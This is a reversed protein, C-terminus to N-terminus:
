FNIEARLFVGHADLQGRTDILGSTQTLRGIQFFTEYQYGLLFRSYNWQPVTYSVGVVERLISVGVDGTYRNVFTEPGAAGAVTEAYSQGIRAFMDTGELRVFVCFGSDGLRRELDLYAWAGFCQVGNSESQTLISGPDSGPNLFRLRSDFYLFLMRYGAGWRMNWHPDLSYERSNYTLDILNYDLRGDQDAPAQVVDNSDTTLQDHGRSALFSYGFSLSGWNDPFRYGFEFRPSVTPDIKNGAFQVPDAQGTVGNQVFGSLENRLHPFLVNAEVNVFCGPQASYPRDLLPDPGSFDYVPWSPQPLAYAPYQEQVSAPAPLTDPRAPEQATVRPCATPIFGALALALLWRRASHTM